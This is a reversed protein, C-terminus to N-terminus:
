GDNVEEKSPYAEHLLKLHVECPTYDTWLEIAPGVGFSLKMGNKLTWVEPNWGQELKRQVSPQNKPDFVYCDPCSFVESELRNM